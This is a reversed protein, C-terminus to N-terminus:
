QNFNIQNQLPLNQKKIEPAPTESKILPVFGRDINLVVNTVDIVEYALDIKYNFENAVLQINKKCNGFYCKRVKSYNNNFEIYFGDPLFYNSDIIKKCVTIFFDIQGPSMQRFYKKIEVTGREDNEAYPLFRFFTKIKEETFYNINFM